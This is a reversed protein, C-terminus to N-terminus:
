FNKGMHMTIGRTWFELSEEKGDLRRVMITEASRTPIVDTDDPEDERKRRIAAYLMSCIVLALAGIVMWVWAPRGGRRSRPEDDYEDDDRLERGNKRAREERAKRNREERREEREEPTLAPRGQKRPM